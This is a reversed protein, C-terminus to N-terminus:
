DLNEYSMKQKPFLLSVSLLIRYDPGKDDLGLGVALTSYIRNGYMFRYGIRGESQDVNKSAVTSRTMIEALISFNHDALFVLGISGRIDEQLNDDGPQMYIANAHVKFPGLRKSVIVGGGYGGKTSYQQNNSSKAVTLLYAASPGYKGEEFFRHKFSFTIDELGEEIDDKIYPINMGFETTKTLGLALQTSYRYFDPDGVKEFSFAVASQSPEPTEASATSFVGFPAVPQYGSVDLAYAPLSTLLIILMIVYIYINRYMVLILLYNWTSDIENIATM